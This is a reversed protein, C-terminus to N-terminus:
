KSTIKNELLSLVKELFLNYLVSEPLNTKKSSKKKKFFLAKPIWDCVKKAESSQWKKIEMSFYQLTAWVPLTKNWNATFKRSDQVFFDTKSLSPFCNRNSEVATIKAKSRCNTIDYHSFIAFSLRGAARGFKVMNRLAQCVNGKGKWCGEGRGM